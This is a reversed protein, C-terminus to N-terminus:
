ETPPNKKLTLLFATFGLFGVAIIAVTVQDLVQPPQERPPAQRQPPQFDNWKIKQVSAVEFDFEYDKSTGGVTLPLYLSVSKGVNGEIQRRVADSNNDTTPFLDSEVWKEGDFGINSRPIVFDRVYGMSPIDFVLKASTDAYLNDSHRIALIRGDLGISLKQWDIVIHSASINQMQFKLAADDFSFQINIAEDQYVLDKNEVPGVLSYTYLYKNGRGPSFQGTGACSCLLISGILAYVVARFSPHHIFATM